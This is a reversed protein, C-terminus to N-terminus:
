GHTRSENNEAEREREREIHAHRAEVFNVHTARLILEYFVSEGEYSIGNKDVFKAIEEVIVCMDM